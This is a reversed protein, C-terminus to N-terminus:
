DNAARNQGGPPFANRKARWSIILASMAFALLAWACSTAGHEKLLLGGLIGGCAVAANWVTVFIAQALDTADGAAAAEATQFLPAAGGAVVGWVFVAVLVIAPSTSALGLALAAVAFLLLSVLVLGRLNADILAGVIWLGVVGSIGFLLLVLDIRDELGSLVLFPAIYNYLVNHGAIFAFMTLFIPMLGPRVLVQRISLRSQSPQGPFDPLLALVWGVLLLALISIIAFPARWGLWVGLWTGAPVGLSFALPVCIGTVAIARGALRSPVMRAAYGVLLAWVVGGFMGAFLRALVTILFHSSIATLANTCGFGCIAILLLQRRKMGQTFVMVPLAAAFCGIAFATVLQGAMSETVGLGRSIQPLLGAPMVETILTVFGTFSLALLRVLPLRCKEAPGGSVIEGM